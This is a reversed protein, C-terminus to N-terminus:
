GSQYAIRADGPIREGERVAASHPGHHRLQLVVKATARKIRLLSRAVCSLLTSSCRTFGSNSSTM